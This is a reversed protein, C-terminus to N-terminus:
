SLLYIHFYIKIKGETKVNSHSNLYESSVSLINKNISYMSVLHCYVLYKKNQSFILLCKSMIELDVDYNLM